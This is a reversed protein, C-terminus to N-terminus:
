GALFEELAAAYKESDEQWCLAHHAHPFEVLKDRRGRAEWVAEASGPPVTSDEGARLLLIPLGSGAAAGACSMRAYDAGALLAWAFYGIQLIPFGPLHFRTRLYYAFVGLSSNFPCDAVVGRVAEPYGEVLACLASAAGMSVGHVWVRGAGLVYGAYQAWAVADRREKAGFTVLRGGSAGCGRMDAALVTYGRAVYWQAIGAFDNEFSSRYGHLLVVADAGEAGRYLRARLRAGDFSEMYVDEHAMARLEAVDRRMAPLYKAFRTHSVDDTMIDPARRPLLQRLLAILAGLFIILALAFVISLAILLIQM